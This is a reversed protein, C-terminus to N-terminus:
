RMEFARISDLLHASENRELARPREKTACAAGNGMGKAPPQVGARRPGEQKLDCGFPGGKGTGGKGPPSQPPVAGRGSPKPHPRLM